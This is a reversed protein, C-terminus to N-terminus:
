KSGGVVGTYHGSSSEFNIPNMDRNQKVDDPNPSNSDIRSKYPDDLSGRDEPNGYINKKSDDNHKKIEENYKHVGSDYGGTCVGHNNTGATIGFEDCIDEFGQLDFINQKKVM